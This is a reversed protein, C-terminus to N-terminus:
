RSQPDVSAEPAVAGSLPPLPSVDVPAPMIPPFRTSPVPTLALPPAVAPPNRSLPVATGSAPLPPTSRSLSKQAAERRKQEVAQRKLEADQRRQEAEQQKRAIEDQRKQEAEQRKRELEERRKQEAEREKRAAEELERVRRAQNEIQRLTLWGTLASVDINRSPSTMPGNLSMFIDPRTVGSKSAGSLVLHAELSGDTLDLHGGLSLDAESSEATVDNFRMQGANVVFSGELRRVSLQGSDLARGVVDSIHDPEVTLGQDVARTVADFARPDLAALEADALTVKGSGHLSGVLAVPSLGTGEL